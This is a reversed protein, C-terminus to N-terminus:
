WRAGLSRWIAGRPAGLGAARLGFFRCRRPGSKELGFDGDGRGSGIGLAADPARGSATRPGPGRLPASGSGRAGTGSSLSPVQLPRGNTLEPPRLALSSSTPSVPRPESSQTSDVDTDGRPPEIDAEAGRVM